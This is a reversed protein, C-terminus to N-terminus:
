RQLTGTRMGAELSAEQFRRNLQGLITGEQWEPIKIERQKRALLSERGQRARLAQEKLKAVQAAARAEPSTM